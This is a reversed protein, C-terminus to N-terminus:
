ATKGCRERYNSPHKHEESPGKGAAGWCLLHDPRFWGGVPAVDYVVKAKDRAQEVFEGHAVDESL